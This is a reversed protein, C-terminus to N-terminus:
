AVFEFCATSSAKIRKFATVMRHKAMKGELGIEGWPWNDVLHLLLTSYIFVWTLIKVARSHGEVNM